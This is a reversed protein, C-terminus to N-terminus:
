QETVSASDLRAHKTSADGDRPRRAAFRGDDRDRERRVLEPHPHYWAKVMYVPIIFGFLSASYDFWTRRFLIRQPRLLLGGMHSCLMILSQMLAWAYDSQYLWKFIVLYDTLNDIIVLYLLGVEKASSHVGPIFRFTTFALLPIMYVNCVALIQINYALQVGVCLSVFVVMILVTALQKTCLPTLVVIATPVSAVINIMIWESANLAYLPTTCIFFVFSAISFRRFRELCVPDKFRDKCCCLCEISGTSLMCLLSMLLLGFAVPLVVIFLMLMELDFVDDMAFTEDTGDGPDHAMWQPFPIEDSGEEICTTYPLYEVFAMVVVFLFCLFVCQLGAVPVQTHNRRRRFLCCIAVSLFLLLLVNGITTLFIIYSDEINVFSVYNLVRSMQRIKYSLTAENNLYIVDTTNSVRQTTSVSYTCVDFAIGIHLAIHLEVNYAGPPLCTYVVFKNPISMYLAGFSYAAGKGLSLRYEQSRDVTDSENTNLAIQTFICGEDEDFSLYNHHGYLAENDIDQTDLSAVASLTTEIKLPTFVPATPTLKTAATISDYYLFSVQNITIEQENFFRQQM